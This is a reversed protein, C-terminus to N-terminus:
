RVLHLLHLADEAVLSTLDGGPAGAQGLVGRKVGRDARGGVVARDRADHVRDHIEERLATFFGDVRGPSGGTGVLIVPADHLGDRPPVAGGRALRHEVMEHGDLRQHEPRRGLTRPAPSGVSSGCPAAGYVGGRSPCSTALVAAPGSEAPVALGAQLMRSTLQRRIGRAPSPGHRHLRLLGRTSRGTAKRTEPVPTGAIGPRSWPSFTR